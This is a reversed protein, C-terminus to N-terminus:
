RTREVMIQWGDPFVPPMGHPIEVRALRDSYCELFADIAPAPLEGPHTGVFPYDDFIMLGGVQLLDFCLVADRLVDATFHSGDIYCAAYYCPPLARLVQGSQGKYKVIGTDAINADFRAEYDGDFTDVCTVGIGHETLWLASRGEYSGVELFRAGPAVRPLVHERWIPINHTFWNTTFTPTM